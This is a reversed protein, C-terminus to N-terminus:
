RGGRRQRRLAMLALGAMLAVAGFSLRDAGPGSAVACFGGAAQGPQSMGDGNRYQEYFSITKQPRGYHIIPPSPNYHTDISVVSVGYTVENELIKIRFSTTTPTLLPSCVYSPDPALIHANLDDSIPVNGCTRFGPSFTGTPFVQLQGGRDCLVQYGLFDDVTTVDVATWDVTVAENGGAAKVELPEPPPAMDIRVPVNLIVDYPNHGAFTVLIYLHQDFAFGVDCGNVQPIGGDPTSVGGDVVTPTGIIPQGQNRSITTADTMVRVGGNSTFSTLSAGVDGFQVCNRVLPQDCLYGVWFEITGTPFTARKAFGSQSLTFFLWVPAQCECNSTNFFRQLDFDRLSVGPQSEVRIVFDDATISTSGSSGGTGTTQARASSAVAMAAALLLLAALRAFRARGAARLGDRSTASVPDPNGASQRLSTRSTM